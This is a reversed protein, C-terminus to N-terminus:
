HRRVNCRLSCRLRTLWSECQMVNVAAVHTGNAEALTATLRAVEAASATDPQPEPKTAAAAQRLEALAQERSALEGRLRECETQLAAVAQAERKAADLEM